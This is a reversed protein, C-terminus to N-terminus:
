ISVKPLARVYLPSNTQLVCSWRYGLPLDTETRIYRSSLLNAYNCCSRLNNIESLPVTAIDLLCEKLPCSAPIWSSALVISYMTAYADTSPRVLRRVEQGHMQPM